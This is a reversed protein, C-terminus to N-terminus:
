KMLGERFAVFQLIITDKLAYDGSRNNENVISMTREQKTNFQGM